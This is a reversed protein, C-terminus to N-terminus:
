STVRGNAKLASIVVKQLLREKFQAPAELSMRDLYPKATEPVPKFFEGALAMAVGIKSKSAKAKFARLAGGLAVEEETFDTGFPFVQFLGESKYPALFGSVKEPTNHRYAEPVEYHAPVKGSKKAQDLLDNQFRSDAIKILALIVDKDPLGRVDAIGYETVVIDRLHKPVSCHGYNFIINSMPKGAGGRTSRVMMILRGDELAHAMSVFNYQGGIGSVVRGDDLADSIVSGFISIMMATNIFRADKRQLSRLKEGGYLQNVKEVGSMGFLKREEEPMANLAAYFSQPGIFFAGLIVSGGNLKEGRIAKFADRNETSSLDTAYPSEGDFIVGDRWTLGEKILGFEVLFHFDKERLKEQVAEKEILLDFINEPISACDLRKENILEMLPENEFVKRKLIGSKYLEMFADVFMESSGYLGETFTDTGGVKRILEGYIGAIGSEEIIANYRDNETHRMKLGAVIADGLSGIGVQITGGDKVLTSVHLGIMHDVDSVSEKPPGFLTYQTEENKLIFDYSTAPVVADGYMFPLNENVEGIIAVKRGQARQKDLESIAEISIDTNCGMSYLPGSGNGSQYALMQGYVNVGLTVADRIVHTYNSNLHNQQAEPSGMYGGAKNFFEYLSVNDPMNGTRFDKMYDFEPCGGFIRDVLPGLLRKELESAGEPKELALATLITLKIEPNDKARRYLENVFLAPKGLALPMGFIIENGVTRIVEDVCTEINDHFQTDSKM